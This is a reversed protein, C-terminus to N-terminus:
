AYVEVEAFYEKVNGRRQDYVWTLLPSGDDIGLWDAIGDRVAKFSRALNDSDLRRPAVRVLRITLPREGGNFVSQRALGESELMTLRAVSRQSKVRRARNAWHEHVNAESILKVPVVTSVIQQL